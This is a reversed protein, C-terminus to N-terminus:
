EKREDDARGLVVVLVLVILKSVASDGKGRPYAVEVGSVADAVGICGLAASPKL